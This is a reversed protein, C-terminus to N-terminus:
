VATGFREGFEELWSRHWLNIPNAVMSALSAVIAIDIKDGAQENELIDLIVSFGGEHGFQNM